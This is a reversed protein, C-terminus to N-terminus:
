SFTPGTLASVSGARYGVLFYARIAFRMTAFNMLNTFNAVAPRHGYQSPVSLLSVGHRFAPAKDRASRVISQACGLHTARKRPGVGISQHLSNRFLTEVSFM